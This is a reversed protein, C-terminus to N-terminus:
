SQFPRKLHSNIHAQWEPAADADSISKRHVLANAIRHLATREYTVQARTGGSDLGTLYIDITTVLLKPLFYVYQIHGTALDFETNVWISSLHDHEVRFVSGRVDEAPQPYIFQPDWDLAWEKEKNAGFLPFAESLGAEIEFTFSNQVHALGTTRARRLWRRFFALGAVVAAGELCVTVFRTTKM